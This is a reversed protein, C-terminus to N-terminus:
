FRSNCVKTTWDIEKSKGGYDYAFWGLERIFNRDDTIIAILIKEPNGFYGNRQIVPDTVAKLEASLYCSKKITEFVHISGHKCSHHIKNTFWMPVYVKMIFEALTYLSQSPSDTAMHLRLIGMTLWRSHSLTGPERESLNKSCQHSAVAQCVDLLYRQDTSLDKRNIEPLTVQITLFSVISLQECDVLSVVSHVHDELKAT